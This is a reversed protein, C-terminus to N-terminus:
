LEIYEKICRPFWADFTVKSLALEITYVVNIVLCICRADRNRFVGHPLELVNLSM